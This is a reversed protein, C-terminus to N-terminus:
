IDMTKKYNNWYINRFGSTNKKNLGVNLANESKTALRLNAIKNNKTNRDIHDITGLKDLPISYYYSYIVRHLQQCKGNLTFVNYDNKINGIGCCLWYKRSSQFGNEIYRWIYGLQYDIYFDIQEM